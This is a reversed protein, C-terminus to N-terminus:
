DLTTAGRERGVGIEDDVDIRLGDNEKLGDEPDFSFTISLGCAGTVSTEFASDVSALM